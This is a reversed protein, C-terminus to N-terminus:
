SIVVRNLMKDLTREPAMGYDLAIFDDGDKPAPNQSVRVFYAKEGNLLTDHIIRAEVREKLLETGKGVVFERTEQDVPLKGIINTTWLDQLDNEFGQMIRVFKLVSYFKYPKDTTDDTYTTIGRVIRTPSVINSDIGITIVGSSLGAV